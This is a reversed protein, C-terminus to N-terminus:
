FSVKANNRVKDCFDKAIFEQQEKTINKIGSYHFSFNTKIEMFDEHYELYLTNERRIFQVYAVKGLSKKILYHERAGKSEYDADGKFLYINIGTIVVSFEDIFPTKSIERNEKNTRAILLIALVVIIIIWIM